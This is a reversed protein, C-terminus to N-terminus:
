KRKIRKRIGRRNLLYNRLKEPRSRYIIIGYLGIFGILLGILFFILFIPYLTWIGAELWTFFLMIFVIFLTLGSILLVISSLLVKKMKEEIDSGKEKRSRIFAVIGGIIDTVIIVWGVIILALGISLGILTGRWHYLEYEELSRGM